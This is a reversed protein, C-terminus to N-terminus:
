PAIPFQPEPLCAKYDEYTVETIVNGALLQALVTAVEPWNCTEILVPAVIVGDANRVADAAPPMCTQTRGNPHGWMADLSLRVQEYTDDPVLFFRNTNM